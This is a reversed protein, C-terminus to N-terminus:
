FKSGPIGDPYRSPPLRRISLVPLSWWCLMGSEMAAAAGHETSSSGLRHKRKALGALRIVGIKCCSQVAQDANM